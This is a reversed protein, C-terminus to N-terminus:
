KTVACEERDRVLRLSYRRANVAPLDATVVEGGIDELVVGGSSHGRWVLSCGKVILSALLVATPRDLREHAM